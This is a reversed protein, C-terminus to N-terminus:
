TKEDSLSGLKKLETGIVGSLHELVNRVDETRWYPVQGKMHSEQIRRGLETIYRDIEKRFEEGRLEVRAVMEMVDKVTPLVPSVYEPKIEEVRRIQSLDIRQGLKPVYTKYRLVKEVHSGFSQVASTEGHVLFVVSPPKELFRLWDTLGDRDAHASFANIIHIKANVAIEEGLIKVKRAGNLIVRGLTGDGQYGVFILHNRSDFLNHKLHHQIRGGTCMGSGAIIIFPGNKSNLARSQSMRLTTELTSPKFPNDHKLIRALTERDFCEPHHEHVDTAAIAMPSDLYIPIAPIERGKIMEGLLYLLEQTRGVAFSPIIIKSKDQFARDIIEKLRSKRKDVSDHLKNGYTTEILVADAHEFGVPDKLIPAPYHGVDGSFVIRRKLEGETCDLAISAAGLIHGADRYEAVIGPLVEVPDEYEIVSFFQFARDADKRTYLPEVPAKGARLRKRNLWDIDKEQIYAADAFMIRVLDITAPHAYIRGRFGNKVARPILGCHDIHAHTLLIADVESWDVLPKQYNKEEIEPVGQYMGCDIMVRHKGVTVLYSSGTVTGTAGLFILEM